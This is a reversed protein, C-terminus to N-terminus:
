ALYTYQRNLEQDQKPLTSMSRDIDDLDEKEAYGGQYPIRDSSDIASVM